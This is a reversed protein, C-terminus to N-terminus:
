FSIYGTELKHMLERKKETSDDYGLLHLMGHISLRSLENTLSVAFEGAQEKAREISIYIEGQIFKEGFDFAIVDTFYDHKLYERNLELIQKDNVFIINIEAKKVKERHLANVMIEIIRKQPLHKSGSDNFVRIHLSM